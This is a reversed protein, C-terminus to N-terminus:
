VVVMSFWSWSIAVIFTIICVMLVTNSTGIHMGISSVFNAVSSSTSNCISLLYIFLPYGCILFASSVPVSFYQGLLCSSGVMMPM